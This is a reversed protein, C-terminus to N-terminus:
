FRNSVSDCVEHARFMEEQEKRHQEQKELSEMYGDFDNGPDVADSPALIFGILLLTLRCLFLRHHKM